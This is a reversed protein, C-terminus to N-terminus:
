SAPEASARSNRSPARVSPSGAVTANWQDSWTCRGDPPGSTRIIPVSCDLVDSTKSEASMRLAKLRRSGPSLGSSSITRKREARPKGFM